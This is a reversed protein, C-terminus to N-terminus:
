GRYRVNLMAREVHADLSLRAKLSSTIAGTNLVGFHDELQRRWMPRVIAPCIVLLRLRELGLAHALTKACTIATLTKGAGPHWAMLHRKPEPLTRFAEVMKAQYDRLVFGM